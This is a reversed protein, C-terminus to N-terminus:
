RLDEKIMAVVNVSLKNNLKTVIADIADKEIMRYYNRYGEMVQVDHLEWQKGNLKDMAYSHLMAAFVRKNKYGVTMNNDKNLMIGLNWNSGASSGYRTKEKKINFPADFSNLCKIIEQEIESCSFDYESSVLFDDAYRTYVFKQKNFNRFMNFLEYDVPIMILNTILPSIPTGQPLGGNLFALSIAKRLAEYGRTTKVVQSFPFVMSLMKMTYEETTSGFFNSLDFKAFWKSKNNQHKKVADITSRGRVYAFASTHYLANFYTEFLVKLERLADMLSATPADIRRLGGSKKPIYFTRYLRQRELAFLDEHAKNFEDLKNILMNIHLNRKFIDSANDVKYTRTATSQWRPAAFGVDSYKKEFDDDTLFLFDDLSIQQSSKYNLRVVIYEM